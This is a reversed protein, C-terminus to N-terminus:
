GMRGEAEGSRLTFADWETVLADREDCKLPHLSWANALMQAVTWQKKPVAVEGDKLIRSSPVPQLKSAIKRVDDPWVGFEEALAAIETELVEVAVPRAALEARLRANLELLADISSWLQERQEKLADLAHPSIDTISM